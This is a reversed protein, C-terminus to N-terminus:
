AKQLVLEQDEEEEEEEEEEEKGDEVWSSRPERVGSSETSVERQPGPAAQHPTHPPWTLARRSTRRHALAAHNREM